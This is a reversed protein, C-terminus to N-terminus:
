TTMRTCLTLITEGTGQKSKQILIWPHLTKGQRQSKEYSQGRKWPFMVWTIMWAVKRAQDMIPSGRAPLVVPIVETLCDSRSQKLQKTRNLSTNLQSQQIVLPDSDLFACPPAAFPQESLGDEVRESIQTGARTGECFQAQCGAPSGHTGQSETLPLLSSTAPHFNFTQGEQDVAVAEPATRPM